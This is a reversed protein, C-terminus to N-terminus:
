LILLAINRSGRQTKTTQELTVKVKVEVMRLKPALHHDASKCRFFIVGTGLPYFAVHDRSDTQVTSPSSFRNDSGSIRVGFRKDRLGTVIGVASDRSGVMNKLSTM